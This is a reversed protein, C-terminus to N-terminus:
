FAEAPVGAEAEDFEMGDGEDIFEEDDDNIFYGEQFPNEADVVVTHVEPQSQESENNKALRATISDWVEKPFKYKLVHKAAYEKMKESGRTCAYGVWANITDHPQNFDLYDAISMLLDELAEGSRRSMLIINTLRRYADNPRGLGKENEIIKKIALYSGIYYAQDISDSDNAFFKDIEDQTPIKYDGNMGGNRGHNIMSNIIAKILVNVLSSEFLPTLKIGNDYFVDLMDFSMTDVVSSTIYDMATESGIYDYIVEELVHKDVGKLLQKLAPINYSRIAGDIRVYINDARRIINYPLGYQSLKTEFSMNTGEIHENYVGICYDEQDDGQNRIIAFQIRNPDYESMSFDMFIIHQNNWNDSGINDIYADGLFYRVHPHKVSIVVQNDKNLLVDVNSKDVCEYLYKFMSEKTWEFLPKDYQAVLTIDIGCNKLVNYIGSQSRFKEIFSKLFQRESGNNSVMMDHNTFDHANTIGKNYETTFGVISLLDDEKKSFDFIIYQSRDHAHEVYQNWYTKNKSICWNTTKALNKVTEYDEVKVLVVDGNDVITEYKMGEVNGLFDMFSEKNWDFHTTTVHRMQRMIEGFDEITSMKRIFNVKKVDSLRYFKSLVDKDKESLEANKLIKKQATNFMNIVDNVRKTKRLVRLEESLSVMDNYSTYATLTGKKLNKTMQGYLENWCMISRITSMSIGNNFYNSIAWQYFNKSGDSYMYARKSFPKEVGYGHKNTLTRIMKANSSLFKNYEEEFNDPLLTIEYFYPFEQRLTNKTFEIVRTYRHSIYNIDDDSMVSRTLYGSISINGCNYHNNFVVLTEGMPSDAKTKMVHCFSYGYERFNILVEKLSSDSLRWLHRLGRVNTGIM